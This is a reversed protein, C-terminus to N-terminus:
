TYGGFPGSVGSSYNAGGQGGAGACKDYEYVVVLAVNIPPNFVLISGFSIAFVDGQGLEVDPLAIQGCSTTTGTPGTANFGTNALNIAGSLVTQSASASLGDVSYATFIEIGNSFISIASGNSSTQSGNGKFVFQFAKIRWKNPKLSPTYIYAGAAVGNGSSIMANTRLNAVLQPTVNETVQIWNESSM